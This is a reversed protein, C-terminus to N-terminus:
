YYLILDKSYEIDTHDDNWIIDKEKIANDITITFQNANKFHTRVNPCEQPTYATKIGGSFLIVVSENMRHCYLRLNNPITKGNETYVPEKSNKKPPLGMAEGNNQENRFFDEVAGYKNGIEQLWALIHNLKKKNESEHARIFLEFLSEKEDIPVDEDDLCISYYSVKKYQQIHKLRLIGNM